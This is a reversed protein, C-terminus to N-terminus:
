PVLGQNQRSAQSRGEMAGDKRRRRAVTAKGDDYFGARAGPVIGRAELWERHDKALALFDARTRIAEFTTQLSETRAMLDAGADLTRHDIKDRQLHRDDGRQISKLVLWELAM